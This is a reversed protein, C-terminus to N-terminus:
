TILRLQHFPIMLRQWASMDVRRPNSERVVYNSKPSLVLKTTIKCCVKYKGPATEITIEHVFVTRMMYLAEGMLHWMLTGVDLDVSAIIHSLLRNTSKTISVVRSTQLRKASEYHCICPKFM